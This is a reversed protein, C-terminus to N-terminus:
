LVELKSGVVRTVFPQGDFSFEVNVADAGEVLAVVKGPGHVAHKVQGDCFRSLSSSLSLLAQILCLHWIIVIERVHLLPNQYATDSPATPRKTPGKQFYFRSRCRRHLRGKANCGM